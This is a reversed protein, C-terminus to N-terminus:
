NKEEKIELIEKTTFMVHKDFRDLALIFILGNGEDNVEKIVANYIRGGTLRLFVKKGLFINWDM